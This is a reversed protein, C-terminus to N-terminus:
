EEEDPTFVGAEAASQIRSAAQLARALREWPETDAQQEEAQEQQEMRQDLTAVLRQIATQAMPELPDGVLSQLTREVNRVAALTAVTATPTTPPEQQLWEPDPAWAISPRNRQVLWDSIQEATSQGPIEDEAEPETRQQAPKAARRLLAEFHQFSERCFCSM